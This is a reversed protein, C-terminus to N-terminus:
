SEYIGFMELKNAHQSAFMLISLLFIFRATKIGDERIIKIIVTPPLM